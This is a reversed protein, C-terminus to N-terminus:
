AITFLIKKMNEMWINERNEKGKRKKIMRDKEKNKKEIESGYKSCRGKDEGRGSGKKCWAKIRRDEQIRKKNQHGM